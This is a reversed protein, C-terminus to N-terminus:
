KLSYTTGEKSDKLQIGADALKDRIADSTAFDKNARAQNRLEILLEVAQDLKGSDQGSTQGVAELGMIEFLFDNMTQKVLEIDAQTLSQKGEAVAHIVKTVDFLHAILIPSNFDDNMADYCSQRWAAVDFDSQGGDRLSEIM